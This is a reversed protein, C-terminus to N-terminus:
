EPVAPLREDLSRFTITARGVVAKTAGLGIENQWWAQQGRPRLLRRSKPVQSLMM